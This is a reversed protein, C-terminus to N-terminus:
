VQLGKVRQKRKRLLDELETIKLMDELRPERNEYRYDADTL